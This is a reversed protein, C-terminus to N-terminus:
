PRVVVDEDEGQRVPHASVMLDPGTALGSGVQARSSAAAWAQPLGAATALAVPDPLDISGAGPSILGERKMQGMIRNVQVQGIGLVNALHDQTLPLPFRTGKVLGVTALRARLELLLHALAQYATRAGLRATHDLLRRAEALDSEQSARRLGPHEDAGGARVIDRLGTADITMGHTLAFVCYLGRPRPQMSYGIPDGPILLDLMQRGGWPTTRARCAWGAVLFRCSGDGEDGLDAGARHDVLRGALGQMLVRDADELPSLAELRRLALETTLLHPPSTTM